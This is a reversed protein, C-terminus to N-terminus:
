RQQQRLLNRRWYDCYDGSGTCRITKEARALVDAYQKMFERGQQIRRNSIFINRYDKWEKTKEAPRAIAELISDRRTAETMLMILYDREFGHNTVMEDVFLIAEPHERYNDALTILPLLTSVLLAITKKIAMM